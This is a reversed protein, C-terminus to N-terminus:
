VQTTLTQKVAGVLKDTSRSVIEVSQSYRFVEAQLTILEAATFTKGRAAAAILADLRKEAAFAGDAIRRMADPALVSTTAQLATSKTPAALGPPAVRAAHTPGGPTVAAPRAAPGGRREGLIQMFQPAQTAKGSAMPTKPLAPATTAAAGMPHVKM